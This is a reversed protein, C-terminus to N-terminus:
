VLILSNLVTLFIKGGHHKERAKEGKGNDVKSKSMDIKEDSEENKGRHGNKQNLKKIQNLKM